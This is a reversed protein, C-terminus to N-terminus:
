LRRLVENLIARQQSDAYFRVGYGGQLVRVVEGQLKFPRGLLEFTIVITEGLLLRLDTEIFLGGASVNRAVGMATEGRSNLGDVRFAADIREHERGEIGPKGQNEFAQLRLRLQENEETLRTHTEQATRLAMELERVRRRLNQNEVDLIAM